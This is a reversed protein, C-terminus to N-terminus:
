EAPDLHAHELSATYSLVEDTESVIQFNASNAEWSWRVTKFSVTRSAADTFQIPAFFEFELMNLQNVVRRLHRWKVKRIRAQHTKSQGCITVYVVRGVMRRVAVVVGTMEGRVVKIPRSDM